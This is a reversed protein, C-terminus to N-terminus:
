QESDEAATAPSTARWGGVSGNPASVPRAAGVLGLLPLSDREVIAHIQARPISPLQSGQNMTNVSYLAEIVRAPTDCPFGSGFLLKDMVDSAQARLLADYLEWPRSAVTSIDAYVNEHKRVILLAEDIWPHGLRGIVIRLDPINRAVEDWHLPRAFELEASAIVPELLTSFVPLELEACREFLRMASSHTPHCGQLAPSVAVGALGMSIAAELQDDSDPALPDIGAVGIRRDPRRAAVEAIIENPVNAGLRVSQFGLLVSCDVCNMAHEHADPTADYQHWHRSSRRRIMDAMEEGLQAPNTWVHTHLDIIM